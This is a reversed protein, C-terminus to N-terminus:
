LKKKRWHPGRSALKLTSIHLTQLNIECLVVQIYAGGVKGEVVWAHMCTCTSVCMCECMMCACVCVCVCVSHICAHVFMTCVRM